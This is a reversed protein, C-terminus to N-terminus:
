YSSANSNLDIVDCGIVDCGIVDCGIVDCGIVDCGIVDCGIVDCGIVLMKIIVTYPDVLVFISSNAVAQKMALREMETMSSHELIACGLTFVLDMSQAHFDNLMSMPRINFVPNTM